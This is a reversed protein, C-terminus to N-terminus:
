LPFHLLDELQVDEDGEASEKGTSSMQTQISANALPAGSAQPLDEYGSINRSSHLPLVTSEKLRESSPVDPAKRKWESSLPRQSITSSYSKSNMTEPGGLHPFSSGVSSAFTSPLAEPTM